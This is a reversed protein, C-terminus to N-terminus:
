QGPTKLEIFFDRKIKGLAESSQKGIFNLVRLSQAESLGLKVALWVILAATLCEAMLKQNESIAAVKFDEIAERLDEKSALPDGNKMAM